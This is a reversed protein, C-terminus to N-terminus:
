PLKQAACEPQKGRHRENGDNDKEKVSFLKGPASRHADAKKGALPEGSYQVNGKRRRFPRARERAADKGDTKGRRREYQESETELRLAACLQFSIKNQDGHNKRRRKSRPHEEHKRRRHPRHRSRSRLDDARRRHQQQLPRQAVARHTRIEIRFLRREKRVPVGSQPFFPFESRFLKFARLSLARREGGFVGRESGFRGRATRRFPRLPTFFSGARRLLLANKGHAGFQPLAAATACAAM